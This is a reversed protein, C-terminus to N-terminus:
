FPRQFAVPDQRRGGIDITDTKSFFKKVSLIVVILIHKKERADEAGGQRDPFHFTFTNIWPPLHIQISNLCKM